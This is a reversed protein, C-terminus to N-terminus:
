LKRIAELQKESIAPYLFDLTLVSQEGGDAM